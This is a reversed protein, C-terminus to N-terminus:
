ISSYPCRLHAPIAIRGQKDAQVDAAGAAFSRVVNRETQGRRAKEQMDAAVRHFEEATWVALCGDLVVNVAIRLLSRGPM